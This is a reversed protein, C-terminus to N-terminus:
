FFNIIKYHYKIMTKLNELDQKSKIFIMYNLYIVYVIKLLIKLKIMLKQSEDIYIGIALDNKLNVFFRM